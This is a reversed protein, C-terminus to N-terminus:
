KSQEIAWEREKCWFCEGCTPVYQGPTYTTYDIGEFQGECSRTINFLDMIGLTKYQSVVWKKDVFRFPHSAVKGMHIMYELHKNNDVLEIDREVMGNFNKLRPNRTVGNYHADCNEHFCVYEAFARKEINDGSVLKGYEDILNPGVSGYELEPSIFNVHRKFNLSPFKQVLYNYVNLSDYQQWPKTKWVRIHSIIHITSNKSALSCVLHSLLASDAGGSVSIAVNSWTQNFPIKVGDINHFQM